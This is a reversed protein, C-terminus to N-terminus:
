SAGSAQSRWLPRTLCTPGGTGPICLHTGPLTHVTLGAARMRACTVANPELAVVHGGGVALVNTGLTDFERAPCELTAIQREALLQLLRVPTLRPAIVALDDRLLSILSMLHLCHDPGQLNPLDFAEIQVGLPALLARLQAVGAQNTRWGLGACLLDPAVWLLDGAEVLGPPAIQGLTPITPLDRAREAPEAVRNPKGPNLLVLGRETVLLGDYAYIADPNDAPSPAGLHVRAGLRTLLAQLEAFEARLGGESFDGWGVARCTEPDLPGPPVLLVDRLPATMSQAGYRTIASM